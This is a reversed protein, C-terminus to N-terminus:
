TLFFKLTLFSLFRPHENDNLPSCKNTSLMTKEYDYKPKVVDVLTKEPLMKWRLPPSAPEDSVTVSLLKYALFLPFEKERKSMGNRSPPASGIIKM